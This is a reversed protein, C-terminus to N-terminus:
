LKRGTTVLFEEAIDCTFMDGELSRQVEHLNGLSIGKGPQSQAVPHCHAMTAIANRAPVM